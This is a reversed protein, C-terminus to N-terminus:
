LVTVTAFFFLSYTYKNLNGRQHSPVFDISCAKTLSYNVVERNFLARSYHEIKSLKFMCIWLLILKPAQHCM